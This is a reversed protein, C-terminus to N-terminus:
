EDGPGMEAGAIRLRADGGEVPQGAGVPVIQELIEMGAEDEVGGAAAGIGAARLGRLGTDYLVISGLLLFRGIIRLEARDFGMTFLGSSLLALAMLVSVVKLELATGMPLVNLMVGVLTDGFLGGLGFSHVWTGGPVHTAAYAAASMVLMWAFIVRGLARDEGRHFLFRLGWMGILVPLSWAGLGLIIILTSAAAAGARGLLNRAPEDTAVMWGPDDPSYSGLMAALALAVVLLGLGLLEKGRKEVMAQTTRDLLPERQRAHYSAM